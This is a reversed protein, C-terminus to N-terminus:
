EKENKWNGIWDAEPSSPGNPGTSWVDYSDKNHTGPFRYHYPAGWPDEPLSDIFPGGGRKWKEEKGNPAKMLAKLGEDNSPYNGMKIRYTMLNTKLTQNVFTSTVENQSSSFRGSFNSILIGALLGIIAVVIMIEIISFASAMGARFPRSPFRPRATRSFM